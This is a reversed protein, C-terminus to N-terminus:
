ELNRVIYVRGVSRVVDYIGGGLNGLLSSSLESFASICSGALFHMRLDFYFETKKDDNDEQLICATLTVM